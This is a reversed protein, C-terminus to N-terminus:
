WRRLLSACWLGAPDLFIEAAHGYLMAYAPKVDPQFEDLVEFTAERDCTNYMNATDSSHIDEEPALACWGELSHAM